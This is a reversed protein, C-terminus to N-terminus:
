VEFDFDFPEFKKGKGFLLTEVPAVNWLRESYEVDKLQRKKKKGFYYSQMDILPVIPPTRRPTEPVDTRTVTPTFPVHTHTFGTMQQQLQKQMQKLASDTTPIIANDLMMVQEPKVNQSTVDKLHTLDHLSNNVLDNVRNVLDLNYFDVNTTPVTTQSSLQTTKTTPPYVISEYISDTPQVRRKNVRSIGYLGLPITPARWTPRIKATTSAIPKTEPTFPIEDRKPLTGAKEAAKELDRITKQKLETESIRVTDKELEAHIQDAKSVTKTQQVKIPEDLVARVPSISPSPSTDVDRFVPKSIDRPSFRTGIVDKVEEAREIEKFYAQQREIVREALVDKTYWGSGYPDYPNVTTTEYHSKPTIEFPRDALKLTPEAIKLAQQQAVKIPTGQLIAKATSVQKVIPSSVTKVAGKAVGTLKGAPFLFTAASVGIAGAAYFPNAAINQGIRNLEAAIDTQVKGTTILEKSSQIGLSFLDGEPEAHFKIGKEYESQRIRTVPNFTEELAVPITKFASIINEGVALAGKGLDTLPDSPKPVELEQQKEKAEQEAKMQASYDKVFQDIAKQDYVTRPGFLLSKDGKAAEETLIDGIKKSGFQINHAPDVYMTEAEKAQKAAEKNFDQLEGYATNIMDNQAQKDTVPIGESYKGELLELAKEQIKETTVIGGGAKQTSSVAESFAEAMVKQEAQKQLEAEKDPVQGTVAKLYAEASSPGGINLTEYTKIQDATLGSLDPTPKEPKAEEAIGLTERLAAGEPSALFAPNVDEVKTVERRGYPDDHTPIVKFEVGTPGYILNSEASVPKITEKVPEPAKTEVQAPTSTAAPAVNFDGYIQTTTPPPADGRAAREYARATELMFDAQQRLEALREDYNGSEYKAIVNHAKSVRDRMYNLSKNPNYILDYYQTRSISGSAYRNEINALEKEIKEIQTPYSLLDNKGQRYEKELQQKEKRLKGYREDLSIYAQNYNVYQQRYEQRQEQTPPQVPPASSPTSSPPPVNSPLSM